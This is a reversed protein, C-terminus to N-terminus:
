PTSAGTPNNVQPHGASMRGILLFVECGLCFAFVANLFAAALASGIAVYFISPVAFVWAALGVLAFVLGVAQAFRPPAQEELEKPPLLRPRILKRFIVGYPQAPLGLIAGAAFALAQLVLLIGAIESGSGLVLIIALVVTTIAAGFRPSRADILTPKALQNSSM